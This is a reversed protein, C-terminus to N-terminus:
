FSMSASLLIFFREPSSPRNISCFWRSLARFFIISNEDNKLWYKLCLSGQFFPGPVTFQTNKDTFAARLMVIANNGNRGSDDWLIQPWSPNEPLTLSFLQSEIESIATFDPCTKPSADGNNTLTSSSSIAFYLFCSPGDCHCFDNWSNRSPSVIIQFIAFCYFFIGIKQVWFFIKLFKDTGFFKNYHNM